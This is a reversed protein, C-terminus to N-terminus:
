IKKKMNTLIQIEIGEMIEKRQNDSKGIWKTTNMGKILEACMTVLDDTLGVPHHGIQEALPCTADMFTNAWKITFMLGGKSMKVGYKEFRNRLKDWEHDERDPIQAGVSHTSKGWTKIKEYIRAGADVLVSEDRSKIEM